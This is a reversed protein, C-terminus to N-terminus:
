EYIESKYKRRISRVRFVTLRIRTCGRLGRFGHEITQGQAGSINADIKKM